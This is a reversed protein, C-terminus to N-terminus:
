LFCFIFLNFKFYHSVILFFFFLILPSKTYSMALRAHYVTFESLFFVRLSNVVPHVADRQLWVQSIGTIRAVCPRSQHIAGNGPPGMGTLWPWACGESRFWSFSVCPEGRRGGVMRHRHGRWLPPPEDAANKISQLWAHPLLSLALSPPSQFEKLSSDGRVQISLKFFEEQRHPAM